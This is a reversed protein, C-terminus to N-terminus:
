VLGVGALVSITKLRVPDGVPVGRALAWACSSLRVVYTPCVLGVDRPRVVVALASVVAVM